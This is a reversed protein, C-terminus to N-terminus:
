ECKMGTVVAVDSSVLWAVISVGLSARVRALSALSRSLAYRVGLLGTGLAGGSDNEVREYPTAWHLMVMSCVSTRHHDTPSSLSVPESSECGNNPTAWPAIAALNSDDTLTFSSMSAHDVLDPSITGSLDRSIRIATPYHNHYSDTQM